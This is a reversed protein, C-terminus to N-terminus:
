LWSIMWKTQKMNRPDNSQKGMSNIKSKDEIINAVFKDRLTM